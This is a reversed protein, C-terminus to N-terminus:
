AVAEITSAPKKKWQEFQTKGDKIKEMIEICDCNDNIIMYGTAENPTWGGLLTTASAGSSQILYKGSMGSISGKLHNQKGAELQINTEFANLSEDFILKLIGRSTQWEGDIQNKKIKVDSCLANSYKVRYQSEKRAEFLIGEEKKKEEELLTTIKHQADGVRPNVKIGETSLKNAKDIQNQADVIFGADIYAHALNGMSITENEKAAEFYKSVSKGKLELNGYSAGMNNLGSSHKIADTLKKYHLLALKENANSSYAYALDFRLQKNVPNNDLSAEAYVFFDEFIGKDKSIRAMAEFIEARYEQLHPNSLLKKLEGISTDKDGDNALCWAAQIYAEVLGEKKDTDNIDYKEAALLFEDRAKKFEGIEKYRYALQKIVRPEDKKEQALEKLKEFANEDGLSHSTKLIYAHLWSKDDEDLTTEAEENFIKWAKEYDKDSWLAIYVRRFLEAKKDKVETKPQEKQEEPKTEEPKSLGDSSKETAGSIAKNKIDNIMQSIKLFSEELHNRDFPIYELNGQLKPLECVGNEKLLILKKNRGLAFGSEQIVWNSTTFITTESGPKCHWKTEKEEKCIPKDCTFIGVFIDCGDILETIKEEVPKSKASKADGCNIDLSEIFEVIKTVLQNDYEDFSRGIFAKM